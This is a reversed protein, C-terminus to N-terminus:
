EEIQTDKQNIFNLGYELFQSYMELGKIQFDIAENLPPDSVALNSSKINVLKTIFQTNLEIFKQFIGTMMDSDTSVQYKYGLKHSGQKLVTGYQVNVNISRNISSVSTPYPSNSGFLQKLRKSISAQTWDKDKELWLLADIYGCLGPLGYERWFDAMCDFFIRREKSIQTMM